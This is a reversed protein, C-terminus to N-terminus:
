INCLLTVVCVSKSLATVKGGLFLLKQRKSSSFLVYVLAQLVLATTVCVHIQGTNFTRVKDIFSAFRNNLTKMQEKEQTRVAQISPDIELNLPALLSKNVTVASIPTHAVFGGGFASGLGGGFGVSASGMSSGLGYSSSSTIGAGGLGRNAGGYSSRMSYSRSSSPGAYSLSSFNRPGSSSKVTYSSTKYVSMRFDATSINKQIFDSHSPQCPLCASPLSWRPYSSFFTSLLKLAQKQPLPCYHVGMPQLASHPLATVNCKYSM